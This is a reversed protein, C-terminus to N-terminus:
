ARLDGYAAERAIDAIKFRSLNLDVLEADSLQSLEGYVRDFEQRRRRAEARQERFDAVWAEIRGLLGADAPHHHDFFAISM